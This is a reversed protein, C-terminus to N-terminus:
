VLVEAAANMGNEKAMLRHRWGARWASAPLRTSPSSAHQLDVVNGKVCPEM